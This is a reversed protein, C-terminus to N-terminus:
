PAVGMLCTPSRMGGFSKCDSNPWTRVAGRGDPLMGADVVSNNNENYIQLVGRVGLRARAENQPDLGLVGLMKGSSSKLEFGKGMMMAVDKGDRLVSVLGAAGNSEGMAAVLTGNASHMWINYNNGSSGPSIHVRGRFGTSYPDDTVSFISKGNEDVVTFPAQFKAAMKPISKDGNAVAKELDAVRKRLADLQKMLEALELQGGPGPVGGAVVTDQKTPKQAGAAAPALASSLLAAAVCTAIAHGRM